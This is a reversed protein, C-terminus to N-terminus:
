GPRQGATRGVGGEGREAVLAKTAEVDRGMQAILEDVSDFRKEDRLRQWFEVRLSQGYLDGDFGVLYTEIRPTGAGGFTPNVGVNTAAPFWSGGQTRAAPAHRARGAYVGVPPAAITPDIALNATPFGLGAGRADGHEVVGDLDFPRGLLREATELDGSTVASRVRSSSAAEGGVEELEVGRAEFGLDRGLEELLEVTGARGKGFRWGRGVLVLRAGLGKVLVDEVFSEPTRQSLPVDFPLVAVVDAGTEGLLEIKREPSTLMPPAADPRLTAAPHRDWTLVVSTLGRARAEAVTLAILARHGLHVGDFTGIAIAAGDDPPSLADIGVVVESM